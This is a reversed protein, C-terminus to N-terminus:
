RQAPETKSAALVQLKLNVANLPVQHPVCDLKSGKVERVGMPLLVERTLQEMLECDGDQVESIPTGEFTVTRWTAPFQATAEDAAAAPKGQARAALERTSRDRALEALVEPTAERPLAARVRVRPMIEPGSGNLCGAVTVKYGPRAGLQKMVYAVKDQIGGCSYHSTFGMYTFSLDKDVWVANVAANDAASAAGAVVLMIAFLSTASAQRM